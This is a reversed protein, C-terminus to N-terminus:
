PQMSGTIRTEDVAVRGVIRITQSISKKEVAAVKVGFLQQWERVLESRGPLCAQWKRPVAKIPVAM